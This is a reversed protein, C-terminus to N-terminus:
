QGQLAAVQEEKDKSAKQLEEIQRRDLSLAKPLDKFSSLEATLDKLVKEKESVEVLLRDRHGKSNNALSIKEEWFAAEMKIKQMQVRNLSLMKPTSRPGPDLEKFWRNAEETSPLWFTALATGTVSMVKLTNGDM